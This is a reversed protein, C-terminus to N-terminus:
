NTFENMMSIEILLNMSHKYWDELAYSGFSSNPTYICISYKISLIEPSNM